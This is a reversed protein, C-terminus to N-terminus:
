ASELFIVNTFILSTMEISILRIQALIMMNETNVITTYRHNICKGFILKGVTTDNQLAEFPSDVPIYNSTNYVCFLLIGNTVIGVFTM